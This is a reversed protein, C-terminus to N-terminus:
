LVITLYWILYESIFNQMLRRTYLSILNSATAENKLLYSLSLSDGPMENEKEWSSHRVCKSNSKDYYHGAEAVNSHHSFVTISYFKCWVLASALVVDANQTLFYVLTFLLPYFQRTVRFSFDSPIASWWLLSGRPVCWCILYSDLVLSVVTGNPPANVFTSIEWAGLFRALVTSNGFGSFEAGLKITCVGTGADKLQFLRSWVHILLCCSYWNFTSQSRLYFLFGTWKCRLPRCFHFTANGMGDGLGFYDCVLRSLKQDDWRPERETGKSVVGTHRIDIRGGAKTPSARKRLVNFCLLLEAISAACTQLDTVHTNTSPRCDFTSAVRHVDSKCNQYNTHNRKNTNVLMLWNYGASHPIKMIISCVMAKSKVCARKRALSLITIFIWGSM